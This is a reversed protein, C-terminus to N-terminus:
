VGAKHDNAPEFGFRAFFAILKKAVSSFVLRRHGNQKAWEKLHLIGDRMGLVIERKKANINHQLDIRLSVERMLRTFYLINEGVYWTLVQADTKWDAATQGRHDPDADLSEQLRKLDEETSVRVQLEM